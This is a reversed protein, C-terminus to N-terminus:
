ARPDTLLLRRAQSEDMADGSYRFVACPRGGFGVITSQPGRRGSFGGPKKELKWQASRQFARIFSPHAPYSHFRKGISKFASGLANMLVFALGLGQYDPLTVTRSNGIIDRVKPHPRHLCGVFAVPHPVDDLFLGFCRAARHLKANMYHYPAFMGWTSYPVRKIYANITPRPQVSRWSFTMTAPELVWDPQLWDVIDYHCSVAVFKRDDRRAWKQVAHSGIRAVQRDVVSTFEDVVVPDAVELLRRALDVRFKEGNSLVAFPRLWAPITNFGVAGCAKTIESLTAGEHFDDLVSPAGWEFRPPADFLDRMLSTKGSGSPGVILGVNWPRSDIPVDGSWRLECMERPPVDYMSCVQRARMSTSLKSSVLLDVTPM